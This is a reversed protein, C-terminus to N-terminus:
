LYSLSRIRNCSWVFVCGTPVRIRVTDLRMSWKLYHSGAWTTNSTDDFVICILCQLLDLLIMGVCIDHKTHFVHNFLLLRVTNKEEKIITSNHLRQETQDVAHQLRRHDASAWCLPLRTTIIFKSFCDLLWPSCKGFVKNAREWHLIMSSLLESSRTEQDWICTSSRSSTAKTACYRPLCFGLHPEHSQTKLENSCTGHRGCTNIPSFQSPNRRGM